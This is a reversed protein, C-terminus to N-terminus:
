EKPRAASQGPWSVRTKRVSLDSTLELNFKCGAVLGDASYTVQLPACWYVAVFELRLRDYVEAKSTRAKSIQLLAKNIRVLTARGLALRRIRGEAEVFRLFLRAAKPIRETRPGFSDNLVVVRLSRGDPLSHKAAWWQHKANWRLGRFARCVIDPKAKSTIENRATAVSM